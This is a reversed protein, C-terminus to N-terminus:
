SSIATWGYTTNYILEARTGDLELTVDAAAGNINKGNRALTVANSNFKGKQDIIVVKAGQSPSSPLTLTIAGGTTDCMYISEAVVTVPSDGVAVFEVTAGFGSLTNIAAIAANMEAIFPSRMANLFTPAATEFDTAGTAPVTPLSTITPITM